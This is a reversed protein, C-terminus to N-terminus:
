DATVTIYNYLGHIARALMTTTNPRLSHGSLVHAGNHYEALIRIYEVQNEIANTANKALQYGAMRALELFQAATIRKGCIFRAKLEEM